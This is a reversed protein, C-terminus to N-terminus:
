VTTTTTQRYDQRITKIMNKFRFVMCQTNWSFFLLIKHLVTINQCIIGEFFHLVAYAKELLGHVKAVVVGTSLIFLVM